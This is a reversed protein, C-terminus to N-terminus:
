LDITGRIQAKEKYIVLLLWSLDYTQLSASDKEEMQKRLFQADRERKPIHKGKPVYNHSM